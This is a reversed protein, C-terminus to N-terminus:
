VGHRELGALPQGRGSSCASGASSAVGARDLMAVVRDAQSDGFGVALTNPLIGSAPTFRRVGPIDSLGQWLRERLEATKSGNALEKQALEAATGAGVIAAVDPTGGRRGAEQTGRMWTSWPIGDRGILIGVGKPGGFKHPSATLLDVGSKRVDVPMKGAMQVADTHFVVNQKDRAIEVLSRIDQILGTEHNATQISVVARENGIADALRNPNVRGEVGVELRDVPVGLEHVLGAAGHVSPHEISSIIVKHVRRRPSSRRM